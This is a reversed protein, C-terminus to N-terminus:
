STNANLHQESSRVEEQRPDPVEVLAEQLVEADRVV